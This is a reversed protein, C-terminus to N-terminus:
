VMEGLMWNEYERDAVANLKLICPVSYSHLGKVVRMIRAYHKAASKVLLVVESDKVLKGKWRYFSKIPFINACAILRLKLLQGAIKVAEKEDACAIYVFIM